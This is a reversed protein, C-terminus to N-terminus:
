RSLRSQNGDYPIRRKETGERRKNGIVNTILEAISYNGIEQYTAKLYDVQDLSSTGVAVMIPLNELNQEAM